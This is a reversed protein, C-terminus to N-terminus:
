RVPTLRISVLGLGSKRRSEISEPKLALKYAGAKDIAVQGLKSVVMNMHPDSPDVLKGDDNLTARLQKGAVEVMLKHGGDWGGGRRPAATVATVEFAGPHFVKFDWSLWDKPNTWGSAVGRTDLSLSSDPSAKHMDALQTILSVQGSPQQTLATVVEPQGGAELVIVSNYPDPASSPLPISASYFEIAANSKQSVPLAKRSSDSLLYAKRVKSKIGYITLAKGPWDFVHLYLKGPRATILGWDQDYPFPSPSTGNIAESNVRLWQGVAHLREVSPQPILGESTPGVNLLYNGGHSAIRVLQKVLVPVSKWNQDDKKYGWTDNMTVPTEWDRRSAGMSIQNDGASEYDGANHGVRGSVICNPQLKHVLAAIDKSQEETILRPTDFWILGIPGYFTLLERVQPKAKDEFYQAFNKKDDPGFDWTNGAGNPEHWDQAHSYYFCLKIGAKQCAAALEKMPDRHFPTADVINYKSVKSGYMAFGDHHKSTITIYKMGADKAIAVWEEANFKVPNFQTALQEYESVPIKARNMIWEGAGAVPQGKWEGAPICYLGWHIFMGFRAERWWQLRREREPDSSQAAALASSLFVVSAIL